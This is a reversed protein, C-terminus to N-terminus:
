NSSDLLNREKVRECSSPPTQRFLFLHIKMAQHYDSITQIRSPSVSPIIIHFQTATPFTSNLLTKGLYRLSTSDPFIYNFLTKKFMKVVPIYNRNPINYSWEYNAYTVFTHIPKYTILIPISVHSTASYSPSFFIEAWMYSTVQSNVWIDRWM